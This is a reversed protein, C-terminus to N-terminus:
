NEEFIIKGEEEWVLRDIVWSSIQEIKKMEIGLAQGVRGVFLIENDGLDNDSHGLRLLEKIVELAVRRTKVCRIETLLATETTPEFIRKVDEVKYKIAMKKIYKVENPDVRGDIKSAFLLTKLFAIKQEESLNKMIDRNLINELSAM